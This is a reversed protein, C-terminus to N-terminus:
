DELADLFEAVLDYDDAEFLPDGLDVGKLAYFDALQTRLQLVELDTLIRSYIAVFYIALASGSGGPSGGSWFEAGLAPTSGVPFTETDSETAPYRATQVTGSAAFSVRSVLIEPANGVEDITALTLNAGGGSPAYGALHQLEDDRYLLSTNVTPETYNSVMFKDGTDSGRRAVVVFTMASAHAVGTKLRALGSFATGELMTGALPEGYVSCAAKGPALNRWIPATGGFFNLYELGSPILPSYGIGMESADAGSVIHEIGM